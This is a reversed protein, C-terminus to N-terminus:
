QQKELFQFVAENTLVNEAHIKAREPDADKYYELIMAVEQEVQKPDAKINEIKSIENLILGLKAKKEADKHFEKKLDDVTKNLHKLYDEFKLGMQAIDSEMRYLIKNLEVDILIEPLDIDTKEIIEEVIKLRTKEKLQNEKELKINDKLKLRFDAVDKFPGLAQVFEDNFEPLDKEEPEKIEKSEEAHNHECKEDDCKHKEHEEVAETIHQKKARSKRIDLITDEIEKETVEINKDKETIESTIKKAIKKYDALKTEPMLATKVKFELPNNRALKTISIEPRSIVDLKESELIKPYHEEIAMAAMEELVRIEPVKSLLINQPVKGKRFGDVEVEAGIKNLAKEFYLEFAEAALEGEIEVESKPLKKVNTKLM